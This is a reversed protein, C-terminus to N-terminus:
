NAAIAANIFSQMGGDRIETVEHTTPHVYATGGSFSKSAQKINVKFLILGTEADQGHMWVTIRRKGDKYSLQTNPKLEM